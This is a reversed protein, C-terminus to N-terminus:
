KTGGFLAFVGHKYYCDVDRFGVRALLDLQELLGSPKNEPKAKAMEPLGDHTGVAGGIQALRENMWDEWMAFQWRESRESAPKVVDVVLFAGGFRLERYVKAFVRSKWLLDLHHLANCSFVLDYTQDGPPEEVYEEFTQQAFTVEKGALRERARQLMEASGDLLSFTHGPYRGQLYETIIGDGGGLDLVQLGKRSGFHYGLIDGLLRTTLKREVIVVDAHSLYTNAQDPGALWTNSTDQTVTEEGKLSTGTLALHGGALARGRAWRCRGAQGPVGM